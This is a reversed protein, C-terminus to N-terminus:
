EEVETTVSPIGVDGNVRVASKTGNSTLLHELLQEPSKGDVFQVGDLHNAPNVWELYGANILLDRAWRAMALKLPIRSRRLRRGTNWKPESMGITGDVMGEFFDKAFEKMREDKGMDPKPPSGRPIFERGDDDTTIEPTLPRPHEHEWMWKEHDLEMKKIKPEIADYTADVLEHIVRVIMPLASVVGAVPFAIVVSYIALGELWAGDLGRWKWVWIWFETMTPVLITFLLIHFVTLLTYTWFSNWWPWERRWWKVSLFILSASTPILMFVVHVFPYWDNGTIIINVLAYALYAGALTATFGIGAYQILNRHESAESRRTQVSPIGRTVVAPGHDSNGNIAM